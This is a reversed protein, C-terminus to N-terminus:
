VLAFCHRFGPKLVRLWPIDTTGSFVVLVRDLLVTRAGGTPQSDKNM